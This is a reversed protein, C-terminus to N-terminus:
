PPATRGPSVSMRSRTWLPRSLSLCLECSLCGCAGAGSGGRGGRWGNFADLLEARAQPDLDHEGVAGVLRITLRIQELYARCNPCGAIHREFRVRDTPSLAGELYETMLEVMAQCRLEISAPNM